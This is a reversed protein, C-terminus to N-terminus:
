WISEDELKIEFIRFPNESLKLTSTEITSTSEDDKLAAPIIIKYLIDKDFSSIIALCEDQNLLFGDFSKYLSNECDYLSTTTSPTLTTRQNNEVNIETKQITLMKSNMMENSSASPRIKTPVSTELNPESEHTLIFDSFAILHSLLISKNCM